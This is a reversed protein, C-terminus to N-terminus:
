QSRCQNKVFFYILKQNKDYKVNKKLRLVQEPYNCTELAEKPPIFSGIWKKTMKYNIAKM